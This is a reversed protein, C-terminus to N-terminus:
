SARGESSTYGLSRALRPYRAKLWGGLRVTWKRRLRRIMAVDVSLIVLGLPIMWFGLIPLFGFLGLIVLAIGILIRGVPHNPLRITYGAFTIKRM